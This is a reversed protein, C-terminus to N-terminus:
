RSPDLRNVTAVGAYPPRMCADHVYTSEGSGRGDAKDASWATPGAHLNDHKARFSRDSPRDDPTSPERTLLDARHDPRRRRLVSEGGPHLDDM